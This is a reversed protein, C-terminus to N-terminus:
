RADPSGPQSETKAKRMFANEFYFDSTGTALSRTKWLADRFQEAGEVGDLLVLLQPVSLFWCHFFPQNVETGAPHLASVQERLEVLQANFESFQKQLSPDNATFGARLTAELFQKLLIQDQFSGFQMLSVAIREVGRGNLELRTKTGNDDLEIFGHKRLRVEHWGAQVQAALLSNALDLLVHADSGAQARRTLPKKKVEMFIITKATEVVIDCEGDEGDVVYKGSLTPVAQAALQERLFAEIPTGRRGDFDKHSKRLVTFLAELCAPACTSRDLLWYTKHDRSLLPRLVFNHGIEKGEAGSTPADTPKSFLRNPGESPHCLAEDLVAAIIAPELKGCSAKLRRLDFSVPGRHGRSQDMLVEIVTLADNLTWGTGLKQEFDFERLVGRAIRSIDSGRIQPIRFLTDYLALEQLYPLLAKADMYFWATPVYNQVDLFAAYDSSLRLLANWNEDTDKLPRTGEFHKAALLVLYGFPIQAHGGGMMSVRNVVHYREQVEDYLSTIQRFIRRAVNLGGMTAVIREIHAVLKTESATELYLKDDKRWFSFGLDQLRKAARAVEYTRAHTKERHSSGWDELRAHDYANCIAQKWDGEIPDAAGGTARVADQIRDLVAFYPDLAEGDIVHRQILENRLERCRRWVSQHGSTFAARIKRYLEDSVDKRKFGPTNTPLGVYAHLDELDGMRATIEDPCSDVLTRFTALDM